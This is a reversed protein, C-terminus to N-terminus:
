TFTIELATNFQENNDYQLEYQITLKKNVFYITYKKM